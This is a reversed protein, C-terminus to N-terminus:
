NIDFFDKGTLDVIDFHMDNALPDVDFDAERAEHKKPTPLPNHIKNVPETEKGMIPPKQIAVSKLVPVEASVPKVEPAPTPEAVVTENQELKTLDLVEEDTQVSVAASDMNATVDLIDDEHKEEEVDSDLNEEIKSEIINVSLLDPSLSSEDDSIAEESDVSDTEIDSGIGSVDTALNVDVDSIINVVSNAEINEETNVVANTDLNTEISTEINTDKEPELDQEIKIGISSAIEILSPNSSAQESSNKDDGDHNAKVIATRYHMSRSFKSIPPSMSVYKTSSKESNDGSESTNNASNQTSNNERLFDLQAELQKLSQEDTASNDSSLNLTTVVEKKLRKDKKKKDLAALLAKKEELEKKTAELEELGM